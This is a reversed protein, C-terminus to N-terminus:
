PDQHRAAWRMTMWHQPVAICALGVIILAMGAYRIPPFREDLIVASAVVGTCPALLAFPAVMAAPYRTLLRGWIAYGLVTAVSGIYLAALLSPWSSGAIAAVISPGNPHALYSVLLAPLPPVLSLWAMLALMDVRGIRKVLVNGIAWSFAGALALGLGVKTLDGGITLGILALGCFAVILGVAQRPTPRDHLFLAALLVTFLAQMQQTVSALGAPMGYDYAFFLLLFQATFLFIGTVILMPWSVAPRPLFLAPLCAVAFRLATLQPASFSELGIKIAVFALGWIVSTLCALAIDRPSM